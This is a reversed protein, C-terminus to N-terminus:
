LLTLQSDPKLPAADFGIKQLHHPFEKQGHTCYVKKPNVTRVFELLEDFDAHDSLALAHDAGYRFRAGNSKAWGSLLVTRKRPLTQISRYKKIHPPIVLVQNRALKGGDWLMCNKFEVGFDIYVKAMNWAATHVQVTFGLDGLVKMAEQAKGLAYALVVPTDGWRQTDEIFAALEDVLNERNGNFRYQPGGFTSEMILIDAQPIQIHEATWSKQIKFDGTYLLSGGSNEIYIMSSGLVHGAPFLQVKLDDIELSRGFDLPISHARKARLEFFRITAPTALIKNHNRIHDAHAHSIYSFDVKREADLWLNSGTLQIGKDGYIFM